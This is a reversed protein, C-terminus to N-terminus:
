RRGRRAPVHRTHHRQRLHQASGIKAWRERRAARKGRAGCLDCQWRYGVRDYEEVVVRDHQDTGTMTFRETEVIVHFRQNPVPPIM